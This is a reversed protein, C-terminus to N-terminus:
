LRRPDSADMESPASATTETEKKSEQFSGEFNNLRHLQQHNHNAGNAAVYTTTDHIALTPLAIGSSAIERSTNSYVWGHSSSSTVAIKWDGVWEQNAQLQYQAPSSCRIMRPATKDDADAPTTTDSDEDAEEVIRPTTWAEHKWQNDSDCTETEIIKLLTTTTTTKDNNSNKSEQHSTPRWHPVSSSSASSAASAEVRFLLLIVTITMLIGPFPRLAAAIGQSRRRRSRAKCISISSGRRGRRTKFFSVPRHSHTDREFDDNRIRNENLTEMM